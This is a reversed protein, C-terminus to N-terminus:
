RGMLTICCGGCNRGIKKPAGISGLVCFRSQWTSTPGHGAVILLKAVIHHFVEKKAESLEKADKNIEFLTSTAPSKAGGNFSEGFANTCEQLYDVM